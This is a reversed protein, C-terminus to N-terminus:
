WVINKWDNTNIKKNSIIAKRQIENKEHKKLLNSLINNTNAPDVIVRSLLNNNDDALKEIFFAFNDALPYFSRSSLFSIVLCELYISPFDLQNRERWIKLLKILDTLGSNLVLSVHKIFNTQQWTQEKSVWISHDHDNGPQKRAPTVDINVGNLIVRISVNQARVNQYKSQLYAFLSQYIEKLTGNCGQSLSVIFDVDSGLSIATNKAISGSRNVSLYCTNAWSQLHTRLLLETNPDLLRPKYKDLIFQFYPEVTSNM